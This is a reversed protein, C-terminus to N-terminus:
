VFVEVYEKEMGFGGNASYIITGISGDKFKFVASNNDELVQEESNVALGTTYVEVPLSGTLYILFDIFHCVEGIVRGGGEVPDQIWHSKPIFGANVRFVINMASKKNEIFKKLKIALPSYRRNYGVFLVKNRKEYTNKISNLEDISLAIPKEIFVHKDAKLAQVVQEAHMNHRTTIFVTNIRKEKLLKKYDTTIIQASYKQAKDEASIGSATAIGLIQIDQHKKFQPYLIGCAYNGAGILGVVIDASVKNSKEQSIEVISAPKRKRHYQFIVGLYDKKGEILERYVEEAQDFKFKHSTLSKVDLKKQAILNLIAQMNRQETWRVYAYPYDQGREEYFPDYRGPGYSMSLRLDIEKLYFTNRPVDLPILGVAVVRGKQRTVEAALEIPENSKTGATIIVADAGHNQTIKQVESIVHDYKGYIAYDIGLKKAIKVKQPDLDTGIVTCGNAKLLQVTILGLLGLGLVFVIDGISPDAQRIGQLAIAGVTTYAAEELSVTDPIKVALNKPIFNVEGHNAYGAGACAVRDGVQFNGGNEGVALVIGSCSYGIPKPEDLQNMVKQYTSRVGEKKVKEIVQRVQDPREKAKGLLSKRAIDLMYKETGISILSNATKVLIGGQSLNPTPVEKLSLKGNKFNQVIQKM